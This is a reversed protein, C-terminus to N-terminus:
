RGHRWTLYAHQEAAPRRAYDMHSRGTQGEWRQYLGIEEGNWTHYDGYYSDYFRNTGGRGACAATTVTAALLAALTFRTVLQTHLRV